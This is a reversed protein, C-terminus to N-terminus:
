RKNRKIEQWAETEKDILEILKIRYEFDLAEKAEKLTDYQQFKGITDISGNPNIYRLTYKRRSDHDQKESTIFYGDRTYSSIRSNFFRMADKSFFHYGNERNLKKIQQINM